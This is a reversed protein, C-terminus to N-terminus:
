YIIKKIYRRRGSITDEESMFHTTSKMLRVGMLPMEAMRHACDLLLLSLRDLPNPNILNTCAHEPGPYQQLHCHDLDVEHYITCLSNKRRM